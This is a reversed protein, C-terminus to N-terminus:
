CPPPAPPRRRLLPRVGAQQGLVQGSCPVAPESALLFATFGNLSRGAAAEQRSAAHACTLVSGGSMFPLFDTRDHILLSCPMGALWSSLSSSTRCSSNSRSLAYLSTPPSQLSTAQAECRAATHQHQM